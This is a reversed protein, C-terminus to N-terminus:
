RLAERLVRGEAHPLHVDLMSALTPAVDAPSAAAEYRGPKVGAGFLILPVQQDEVNASGHTTADSTSMWGHKPAIVLDGSRGPVYSLAAARRLPDAAGAADPAVLEERTFVRQVGPRRGVAEVVARLTGPSQAVKEYMGPAFYIDNTVVRAVYNASGLEGEAARQIADMLGRNSIRGADDGARVLQQPVDAVGHDATLAVVYAGSGVTQDLHNLLSGIVRDLNAYMDQIEQSRPGFKHGVMDPSSFSIGLFDPHAGKGLQMSTTLAVALRGLYADGYPSREWQRYFEEDPTTDNEDGRLVHPFMSTWGDPPNEAEGADVDKYAIPPLMRSWTKGYDAEIPNASLFAAVQPVRASAFASSTEFGHTSESLWTVADGGHGALMIASRAKLAMTVVRGGGRRMEEALTPVRLAAASHRGGRERVYPLAEVERDDTCAVSQARARDYWTNQFIGHTHPYAGTAITAHGPCTVTTLYPYAARTFRAGDEVLRKLGSSWDAAFRDVYDARMQDVVIVVILRPSDAAALLVSTALLIALVLLRRM